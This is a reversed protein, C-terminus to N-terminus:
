MAMLMIIVIVIIIIIVMMVLAFTLSYGALLAAATLSIAGPEATLQLLAKMMMRITTKIIMKIIMKTMTKIIMKFIINSINLNCTWNDFNAWPCFSWRKENTFLLPFCIFWYWKWPILYLTRKVTKLKLSEISKTSYNQLHRSPITKAVWNLINWFYSMGHANHVGHLLKGLDDASRRFSANLAQFSINFAVKPHRSILFGPSFIQSLPQLDTETNLQWNYSIFLKFLPNNCCDLMLLFHWNEDINLM